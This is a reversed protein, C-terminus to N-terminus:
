DGKPEWLEVRNGEPDTIWAFRGYDQEEVKEVTVGARRLQELLRDLNAVRYNIMLRSSSPGFYKTSDPFLAWATHGTRDPHDSERWAFDAFGGRSRIGLRDRYWAAMARPDRAKMFVGGIGTVREVSDPAAAAVPRASEGSHTAAAISLLAATALAAGLIMSKIDVTKRM